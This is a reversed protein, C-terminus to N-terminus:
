QFIRRVEGLVIAILAFGGIIGCLILSADAFNFAWDPVANIMEASEASRGTMRFNERGTSMAYSIAYLVAGIAVSVMPLLMRKPNKAGNVIIFVVISGVAVLTAGIVSTMLFSVASSFKAAEETSSVLGQLRLSKWTETDIGSSLTVLTAIMGILAVLVALGTSIYRIYKHNM